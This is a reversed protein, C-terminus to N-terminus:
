VSIHREGNLFHGAAIAVRYVYRDPRVILDERRLRAPEIRDSESAISTADVSEKEGTMFELLQDLPVRVLGALDDPSPRFATLPRDDRLFFIDQMEHDRIGAEREHVCIRMGVYRLGDRSVSVGIEEEVERLTEDISEGARYHGGVTADLRGPQTDKALSRRQFTLFPGREDIGVVWVHVARHWDGDRHVASRAKTLGTPQGDATVVDFLENPDQPLSLDNM